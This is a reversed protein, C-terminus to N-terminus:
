IDTAWNKKKRSQRRPRQTSRRPEEKPKDENPSKDSLREAIAKFNPNLIYLAATNYVSLDFGENRKRVQVWERRPQGKHYRTVCKESTLQEFYEPDFRDSIPFHVYGAGPETHRLRSFVLEKATDVGITFLSIKGLNSKSPRSVIPMGAGGKGKMAYIRRSERGKVFKYVQQTYHGGSDILACAIRMEVGSEHTYTRSLADELREWLEPRGPDGRLIDLDVKWNEEGQGWAEVGIEFRDDQVDVAATLVLGGAPVTAAYHERRTYLASEDLEEGSEEWVEGLSTNVFTKLTEPAKKASLFDAIIEDWSKWPSYLESIHFGRHKIGEGEACWEGVGRKWAIEDFDADCAECLHVAGEFVINKWQLPQKHGCGPCPLYHRERTSEDYRREIRSFGAITPTSVAVIKRNWFNNTRKRALNLPDGEAGATPPYRDIEDALLIRIPRSALSAPSNAGAITVHGGPFTKHLITNDSARAKGGMLDDLVPTDRVMPAIRDKSFAQGMELTPQLVLMPASDFHVFYGLINLLLETKGIQASSMITVDEVLPDSVADMIERMYPTRDTRWQGPEASAESSLRRYEDAWESITLDPPPQFRARMKKQLESAM